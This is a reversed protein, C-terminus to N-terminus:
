PDTDMKEPAAGAVNLKSQLGSCINSLEPNDKCQEDILTQLAQKAAAYEASDATWGKQQVDTQLETYKALIKEMSTYTLLTHQQDGASNGAAELQAVKVKAEEIVKQPFKALEAVEIGFSQPCPGPRITYLMTLSKEAEDVHATVHKNKASSHRAPLVSLEHFHTAFLCFSKLKTIIHESIAYAIGYGDYTSTGRGLEDVIILSHETAAELISSAELMEAMFTSVGRLQNDGAGVRALISDVITLTCEDCPVYSGMQAMLTILGIMRIYTSKGGMNPGTVIQFSSDGEVMEVDNPIVGGVDDLRILEMCPHRAGKMRIQRRGRNPLVTPLVYTSPSNSAVNALSLVVDLESFVSIAESIVPIYTKSIEVTKDVIVKQREMYKKEYGLFEVSARKLSPDDNLYFMVSKATSKPLKDWKKQGYKKLKKDNPARLCYGNSKHRFLKIKDDGVESIARDRYKEMKAMLQEKKQHFIHLVKDFKHLIVYERRACAPLDVVAEIMALYNNFNRQMEAMPAIFETQLVTLPSKPANSEADAEARDNGAIKVDDDDDTQTDRTPFSVESAGELTKKIWPIKEAFNYLEVLDKIGAKKNQLKDSLKELDVLQRLHDDRMLERTEHNEVFLKVLKQRRHLQAIDVLPQRIWTALLRDGMASRCKKLVGYLSSNSANACSVLEDKKKSFLNLADFAPQNLRMFSAIKYECLTFRHFNQNDKQLGEHLIVGCLSALALKHDLFTMLKKACRKTIITEIHDSMTNEHKMFQWFKNDVGEIMEVNNKNAIKAFQEITASHAKPSLCRFLCRKVGKAVFVASIKTFQADEIFQSIEFAHKSHNYLCLGIKNVNQSIELVVGVLNFAAEGMSDVSLNSQNITEAVEWEGSEENRRYLEVTKNQRMVYDQVINDLMSEKITISPIKEDSGYEGIAKKTRYFTEAIYTADKKGYVQRGQSKRDFISLVNPRPNEKNLDRFWRVFDAQFEKAKTSM